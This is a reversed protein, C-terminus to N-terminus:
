AQLIKESGNVIGRTAGRTDIVLKSDKLIQEYDYCSHDTVIIVVDMSQLVEPTTPISEKAFDFKRTPKLKPIWPDNYSVKAGKQTLLNMVEYSPSERDDDIDKKYAMGLILIKSGNITKKQNNLAETTREVVYDPMAVNIEGALNIFKTHFNFEKSKWSLYFPDIPICHGGLGPGPYFPLYGFPKTAAANVVEFIDINMKHSLVKLENVLAINVCRFINEMLKTMEATRTSSVPAVKTFAGYLECSLDKCKSTTGGVVKPINGCNYNKNGPDEREPSFALFYDTGVKFGKSEFQALFIEDTSGPYTTSEVVILQGQRLYKSIIEATTKLYKLDPDMKENLPTPVCVLICDCEVLRKFDITAQLRNNENAKKTDELPIHKIYSEGANIKEVKMPDIDFGLVNFGHKNFQLALPLGVYGMGIIGVKATKDKIMKMLSEAKLEDVPFM